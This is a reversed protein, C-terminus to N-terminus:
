YFLLDTFQGETGLENYINDFMINNIKTHTIKSKFDYCYAYNTKIIIEKLINYSNYRLMGYPWFELLLKPKRKILNLSGNLIHGEFGQVDMFIFLEEIQNIEIVKDLTTSKIIINKRLSESYLDKQDKNQKIIRHDGFNDESLEFNINENDNSGLATNIPIIKKELDNLIINLKLLKFNLPDPEIAIAKTFYNRKVAPICISGLNAGIDILTCNDTNYGSIKSALTLKDFDFINNIFLERGIGKDSSNLIFIEPGKKSILFNNEPYNDFLIKKNNIIYKFFINKIFFFRYIKKIFLIQSFFFKFRKYM